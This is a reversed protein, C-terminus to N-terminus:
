SSRRGYTALDDCHRQHESRADARAEANLREGEDDFLEAAKAKNITVALNFLHTAFDNAYQSGVIMEADERAELAKLDQNM